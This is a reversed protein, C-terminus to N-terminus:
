YDNIHGVVEANVYVRGAAKTGGLKKFAEESLVFGGANDVGVFDIWEGDAATIRWVAGCNESNYTTDPAGGIFPFYPVDDFTPYKSFLESCAVTNLSGDPNDYINNYVAPGTYTTQVPASILFRHSLLSLIM